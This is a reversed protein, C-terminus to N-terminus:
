KRLGSRPRRQVFGRDSDEESESEWGGGEWMRVRWLAIALPVSDVRKTTDANSCLLVAHSAKQDGRAWRDANEEALPDSASSRGHERYRARREVMLAHSLKAHLAARQTRSPFLSIGNYLPVRSNPLLRWPDGNWHDTEQQRLLSSLPPPPRVPRSSIDPVTEPTADFSPEPRARTVPSRNPPPVVIVAVAGEYPIIGTERIRNFEARTLRRLVTAGQPRTQLRDVLLELEQLVRLRLLHSVHECFRPYMSINQCVRKYSGQEELSKVAEAWCTVYRGADHLKNKFRPHELGDPVLWQSEPSIRTAPRRVASLRVMFDTPLHRKTALCERVPSALMRLYPSSWWQREEVSMRRPLDHEGRAVANQLAAKHVRVQPPRSKHRRIRTAPFLPDLIISRTRGVHSYSPAPPRHRHLSKTRPRNARDNIASANEKSVGLKQKEIEKLLRPLLRPM